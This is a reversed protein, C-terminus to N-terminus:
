IIASQSFLKRSGSGTVASVIEDSSSFKTLVARCCTFNPGLETLSKVLHLTLHGAEDRGGVWLQTLKHHQDWTPTRAPSYRRERVPGVCSASSM